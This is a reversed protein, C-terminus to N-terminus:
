YRERCQELVMNLKNEYNYELLFERGVLQRVVMDCKEVIQKVQAGGKGQPWTTSLLDIIKMCIDKLLPAKEHIEMCVDLQQSPELDFSKLKLHRANLWKNKLQNIKYIEDLMAIKSAFVIQSQEIVLTQKTRNFSVSFDSELELYNLLWLFHYQAYFHPLNGQKTIRNILRIAATYNNQIVSYHALILDLEASIKDDKKELLARIRQKAEDIYTKDGRDSTCKFLILRVLNLDSYLGARYTNKNLELYVRYRAIAQEYDEVSLCLNALVLERESNGPTIQSALELHSIAHPVKNNLLNIKAAETRVYTDNPLTLLISSVIENAQEHDGLHALSNALGLQAWNTSKHKLVSTFAKEAEKHMSLMMLFTTRFQEIEYFYDKHFPTLEECLQIGESPNLQREAKYLPALVRKRSLAKLLRQKLDNATFPKLIYEDPKLEIIPRVTSASGDGSILIFVASYKLYNYHVLEEYLQKGNLGEGLNFDAIIIDYEKTSAHVLATKSSKALTINKEVFGFKILMIKITTLLPAADDVILVSLEKFSNLM